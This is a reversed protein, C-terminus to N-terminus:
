KKYISIKNEQYIYVQDKNLFSWKIKNLFQFVPRNIGIKLEIANIQNDATQLIYNSNLQFSATKSFKYTKVYSAFVDFLLAISDNALMVQKTNELLTTPVFDTKIIQRINGSTQTITGDKSMKKLQLDGLDFVWIGNDYSRAIASAQTIDQKTLDLEGRYALNNDLFLVRNIEKYFVYIEMPNTADVSSINGNYNFNLTALVKGLTNYKYLQNSPTVIYLNGLEDAQVFKANVLFDNVLKTSDLTSQARANGMVILIFVFATKINLLILQHWVKTKM